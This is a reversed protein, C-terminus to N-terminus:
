KTPTSVKVYNMVSASSATWSIFKVMAHNFVGLFGTCRFISGNHLYNIVHHSLHITVSNQKQTRTFRMFPIQLM